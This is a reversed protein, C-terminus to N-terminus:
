VRIFDILEDTPVPKFNTQTTFPPDSIRIWKCTCYLYDVTFLHLYNALIFPVNCEVKQTRKSKILKQDVVEFDCHERNYFSQRYCTGM